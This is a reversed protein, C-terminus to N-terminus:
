PTLVRMLSILVAVATTGPKMGRGSQLESGRGTSGRLAEAPLSPFLTEM